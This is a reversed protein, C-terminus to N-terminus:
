RNARATRVIPLAGYRRDLVAIYSEGVQLQGCRRYSQEINSLSVGLMEAALSQHKPLRMASTTAIAYRFRHPGFSAGFRRKSLRQIRQSIGNEKMPTGNTSIWVASEVRGGLLAPRVADLYRALYPALVDPLDFRDPRNTKIQDASFEVRFRGDRRVLESGARMLAMSRLRRGRAALVTILLGDRYAALQESRRSRSAAQDMMELGWAFLVDVDPVLLVRQKRDLLAYISMGDPRRIWSTDEGPAVIRMARVLDDFRGIITWDANGAARLDRFYSRLRPRTVRVLPPLAPDLWGRWALYGLWLRYSKITKRLSGARLEAGYSQGDGEYPDGPTCGAEWAACDADPLDHSKWPLGSTQRPM